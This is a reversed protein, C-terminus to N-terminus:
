CGCSPDACDILGDHDDDQGNACFPVAESGLCGTGASGLDTATRPLLNYTFFYDVIGTLKAFCYERTYVAPDIKTMSSFLVIPGTIPAEVNTADAGPPAPVLTNGLRVNDAEVLVGEWKEAEAPVAAMLTTDVISPAPVTGVGTKTVSMTMGVEPALETVTRGSTDNVSAFETKRAHDITVVDGLGLLDFDAAQAGFVEVGSFAGGAPDEVWFAGIKSGYRDVATVVVGALRVPTDIPMADNQVDQVRLGAADPSGSPADPGSPGDTASPADITPPADAGAHVDGLGLIQSCGAGLCAIALGGVRCAVREM